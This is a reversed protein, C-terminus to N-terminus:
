KPSVVWRLGGYPGWLNQVIYEQNHESTKLHYLKGGLFIEIHGFRIVADGQTDGIEGHHPIDWGSIRYELRFRASPVYEMGVGITPWIISRTGKAEPLNIDYFADVTPAVSVYQIEWLTKFRFKTDPPAPYTLYNWSVKFNRTTYYTNLFDGSPISTNYMFLNQSATQTGSGSTQWGSFEFRDYKGAPVTVEVGLPRHPPGTLDLFHQNPETAQLGGRLLPADFAKWYFVSGSWMNEIKQEPPVRPKPPAPPTTVPAASPAPAPAPAPQPTQQGAPTQADATFAGGASLTFVALAMARLRPLRRWPREFGTPIAKV